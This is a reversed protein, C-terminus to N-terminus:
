SLNLMIVSLRRNMVLIYGIAVITIVACERCVLWQMMQKSLLALIHGSHLVILTIMGVPSRSPDILMAM